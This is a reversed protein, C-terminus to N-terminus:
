DQNSFTITDIPERLINMLLSEVEDIIFKKGSFDNGYLESYHLINVTLYHPGMRDRLQELYKKAGMSGVIIPYGTKRAREICYTSKGEGRNLNLVNM